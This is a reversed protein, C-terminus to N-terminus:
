AVRSSCRALGNLPVSRWAYLGVAVPIGVVLVRAVSTLPASSASGASIPALAFAAVVALAVAVVLERRVRVPTQPLPSRAVVTAM